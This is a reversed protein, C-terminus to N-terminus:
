GGTDATGAPAPTGAHPPGLRQRRLWDGAVLSEVDGLRDLADRIQALERQFFPHVDEPVDALAQWPTAAGADLERSRHAKLFAEAFSRGIGMTEGVSKM